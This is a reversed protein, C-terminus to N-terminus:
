DETFSVKDMRPTNDLRRDAKQLLGKESRIFLGVVIERIVEKKREHELSSSGDDLQKIDQERTLKGLFEAAELTIYCMAMLTKSLWLHKTKQDRRLEEERVVKVLEDYSSALFEAAKSVRDRVVMAPELEPQEIQQNRKLLQEMALKGLLEPVELDRGGM